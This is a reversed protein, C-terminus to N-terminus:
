IQVVNINQFDTDLQDKARKTLVGPTIFLVPLKKVEGKVYAKSLDGDTCRKKKMAKCYYTLIGAASPLKVVYDIEKGKRIIDTSVVEIDSKKFYKLLDSHFEDGSPELIPKPTNESLKKQTHIKDSNYDQGKNTINNEPIKKPPYEVRDPNKESTTKLKENPTKDKISSFVMSKIREAAEENSLLYWKWFIEKRDGLNVELPKAFDKINNLTVRTIPDVKSDKLIKKDKLLDFSKKEKEHLYKYLEQLRERKEPIYYVPTGGIKTHTVLIKKSDKLQSLLAGILFTDGGLIKMIDRPIALGKTKMVEYVSEKSLTMAEGM